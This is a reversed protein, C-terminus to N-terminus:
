EDRECVDNNSTIELESILGTSNGTHNNGILDFFSTTQDKAQPPTEAFIRCVEPENKNASTLNDDLKLDNIKTSAESLEQSFDITKIKDDTKEGFYQSLSPTSDTM